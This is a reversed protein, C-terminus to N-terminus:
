SWAATEVFIFIAFESMISNQDLFQPTELIQRQGHTRYALLIDVLFSDCKSNNEMLQAKLGRAFEEPNDEIYDRNRFCGEKSKGLLSNACWVARLEVCTQPRRSFVFHRCVLLSKEWERGNRGVRRM